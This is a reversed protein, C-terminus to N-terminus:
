ANVIEEETRGTRWHPAIIWFVLDAPGASPTYVVSCKYPLEGDFVGLATTAPPETACHRVRMGRDRALLDLCFLSQATTYGALSVPGQKWRLDLDHFFLNTIDGFIAVTPIQRAATEAAFARPGDFREDFVVKYYRGALGCASISPIMAGAACAGLGSKLFLRRNIMCCRRRSM